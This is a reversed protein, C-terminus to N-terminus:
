RRNLPVGRAINVITTISMRYRTALLHMAVGKSRELRIKSVVSPSIKRPRRGSVGRPTTLTREVSWGYRLRRRLMGLAVGKERAWDILTLRRGEHVYFVSRRTNQMQEVHTAWICNGPEYDGENDKREIAYEAVRSKWGPSDTPRPGVDAFFADFSRRWRECVRIGRDGYDKASRSKSMSNARFNMDLWARYEPMGTKKM